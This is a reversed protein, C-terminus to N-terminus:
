NVMGRANSSAGPWAPTVMAEIPDRLGLRARLVSAVAGDTAGDLEALSALAGRAVFWRVVQELLEGSM